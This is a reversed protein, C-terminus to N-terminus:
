AGFVRRHLAVGTTLLTNMAAIQARAFLGKPKPFSTATSVAGRAYDRAFEAYPIPRVGLRELTDHVEGLEHNRICRAINRLHELTFPPVNLLWFMYILGADSGSLYTVPHGLAEGLLAAQEGFTLAEPGTVDYAQGLHGDELLAKVCVEGVNRVDVLPARGQGMPMVYVGGDRIMADSGLVFTQMFGHPRVIVHPVGSAILHAEVAGHARCIGSPGDLGAAYASMLVLREVGARAAADVFTCERDELREDPTCVLFARSVGVLARALSDPDDFDARVTDIGRARLTEATAERHTMARVPVGRERLADLVLAGTNGTPGTILFVREDM